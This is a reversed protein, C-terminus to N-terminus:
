WPGVITNFYQNDGDFGQFPPRYFIQVWEKALAVRTHYQEVNTFSRRKMVGKMKQM